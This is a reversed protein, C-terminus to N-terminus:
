VTVAIVKHLVCTMPVTLMHDFLEVKGWIEFSRRREIAIEAYWVVNRIAPMVVCFM